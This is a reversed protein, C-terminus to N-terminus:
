GDCLGGDIAKLMGIVQAIGTMIPKVMVSSASDDDDGAQTIGLTVGPIGRAILASLEGVSPAVLPHIDLKDMISRACQVLPHKFPIGGPRRRALIQITANIGPDSNMEALILEIENLIEGVMGLQESRVEFRLVASPPPAKYGKGANLSGMIISTRPHQPIRIALMKGVIRNMAAIAGFSEGDGQRDPSVTCTIEARLMGLCSYSLRGIHVGELCIASNIPLKSNDLFFRLGALDGRGLSRTSGVLVLNSNLKIKLKELVIPLSAMVALGLSNDAVGAGSIRDESVYLTHDVTADYVTDAHAAVLINREGKSGPLVATCNGAEDISISELGSETFRNRLFDMRGAEGFTPSPIEGIMVVNALVLERLERTRKRYRVVDDLIRTLDHQEPM